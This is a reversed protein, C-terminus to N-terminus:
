LDNYSIEEYLDSNRFNFSMRSWGEPIITIVQNENHLCRNQYGHITFGFIRHCETCIEIDCGMM